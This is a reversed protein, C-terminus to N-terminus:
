CWASSSAPSLRSPLRGTGGRVRVDGPLHGLPLGMRGVVWLAGGLGALVVGIVLLWKGLWTPEM